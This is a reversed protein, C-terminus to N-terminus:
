SSYLVHDDTGAWLADAGGPLPDATAGPAASRGAPMRPVDKGDGVIVTGHGDGTRARFRQQQPHKLHGDQVLHHPKQERGSTKM